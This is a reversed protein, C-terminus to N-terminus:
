GRPSEETATSEALGEAVARLLQAGHDRDPELYNGEAWENWSKLFLLPHGSWARAQNVALKVAATLVTPRNNAVIFGQRGYRPTNDWGVLVTPHTPAELPHQRTLGAQVHQYDIAHPIPSGYKWLNRFRGLGRRWSLEVCADFGATVPEWPHRASSDSEGILYLDGLGSDAALRRWLEAFRQSSPLRHPRYVVFAPRGDVTLYRSDHLITEIAHFHSIHDEIGPYTQEILLRHPKGSWASTWSENAWSLFFRHRLEPQRLVDCLPRELLQRGAFWYHWYCFADIGAASALEAQRLRTEPVRLDYFGLEGPLRPQRHGPRLRRARVVTMWETFGPEWWGDNEPIPHFQPLYYAAVLAPANPHACEAPAM